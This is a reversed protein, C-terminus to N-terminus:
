LSIYLMVLINKPRAHSQQTSSPQQQYCSSTCATGKGRRTEKEVHQDLEKACAEAKEITEDNEMMEPTVGVDSFKMERSIEFTSEPQKNSDGKLSCHINEHFGFEEQAMGESDDKSIRSPSARLRKSPHSMIPAADSVESIKRKTSLAPSHPKVLEAPSHPKVLQAPSHQKASGALQVKKATLTQGNSNLKKAILAKDKLAPSSSVKLGELNSMKKSVKLISLKGVITDMKLKRVSQLTSIKPKLNGSVQNNSKSTWDPLVSSQVQISSSKNDEKKNENSLFTAGREAAKGGNPLSMINLNNKMQVKMANCGGKESLIRNSAVEMNNESVLCGGIAEQNYLALTKDMNSRSQASHASYRAGSPTPHLSSIANRNLSVLNSRPLVQASAPSEDKGLPKLNSRSSVRSSAIETPTKQRVSNFETVHPGLKPLDVANSGKVHVNDGVTATDKDGNLVNSRESSIEEDDTGELVVELTRVHKSDYHPMMEKVPFSENELTLSPDTKANLTPTKSDADGSKDDALTTQIQESVDPASIKNPISCASQNQLKSKEYSSTVRDSQKDIRQAHDTIAGESSIIAPKSHGQDQVYHTDQNQLQSTEYSENCVKNEVQGLKETNVGGSSTKSPDKEPLMDLDDVCAALNEKSNSAKVLKSNEKLADAERADTDTLQIKSGQDEQKDLSKIKVARNGDDKNLEKTRTPLVADLDFKDLENFDFSFAFRDQKGKNSKASEGELREKFNTSEKQPSSFGIDSSKSKTSNKPPSFDLDGMDVKFSKIKDFAGDLSFDMDLKDFNFEEKKGKAPEFKFDMSNDDSEAGLITNWSGLFNKSIDDDLVSNKKEKAKSSSATRKDSEAM